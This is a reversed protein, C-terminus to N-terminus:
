IVSFFIQAESFRLCVEYRRALQYSNTSKVFYLDGNESDKVKEETLKVLKQIEIGGSKFGALVWQDPAQSRIGIM